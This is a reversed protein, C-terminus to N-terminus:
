AAGYWGVSLAAAVAGFAFLIWLVDRISIREGGAAIAPRLLSLTDEIPWKDRLRGTVATIATLWVSQVLIWGNRVNRLSVRRTVIGAAVLATYSRDISHRLTEILSLTLVLLRKIGFPLKMRRIIALPTEDAFCLVALQLVLVILFLRACVTAVYTLAAFRTGPMQAAIEAPSRGVFGVWVLLMFAALPLMVIFARRVAPVTNAGVEFLAFLVTAGYLVALGRMGTLMASVIVVVGFVIAGNPTM